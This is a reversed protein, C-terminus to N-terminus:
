ESWLKHNSIANAAMKARKQTHTHTYVSARCIPLISGQFIATRNLLTLEVSIPYVKSDRTGPSKM